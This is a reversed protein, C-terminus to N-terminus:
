DTASRPTPRLEALWHHGPHARAVLDALTARQEATMTPVAADFDAQDKPRCHKAKFLLVLEPVLYPIGGPTRRIIDRYPFRIREDRRCIWTDGDHPERFVDLLYDGTAPERMWTQHVAALAEPAADEWLRGKGPADFVYDRFHDRLVPFAAAPVAIELDDHTRTRRGHFLDLAWGGAVYWPVGVGALRRAVEDPAWCSSWRADLAEIDDPSLEIGGAPLQESM